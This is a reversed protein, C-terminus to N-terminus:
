KADYSFHRMVIKFIEEHDPKNPSCLRAVTRLEEKCKEYDSNSTNKSHLALLKKSINILESGSILHYIKNDITKCWGHACSDNLLGILEKELTENRV